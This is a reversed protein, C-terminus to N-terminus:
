SPVYTLWTTIVPLPLRETHLAKNVFVELSTIVKSLVIDQRSLVDRKNPLPAGAASSSSM